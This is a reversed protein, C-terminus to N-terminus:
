KGEERFILKSNGAQKHAKDIMRIFKSVEKTHKMKVSVSKGKFGAKKLEKAIDSSITM